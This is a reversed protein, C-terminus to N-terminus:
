RARQERWAVLAQAAEARTEWRQGRSELRYGGGYCSQLRRKAAAPGVAAVQARDIEAEWAIAGKGARRLRTGKIAADTSRTVRLVRGLPVLEDSCVSYGQGAALRHFKM